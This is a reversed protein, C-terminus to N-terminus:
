NIIRLKLIVNDIKPFGIPVFFLKIKTRARVIKYEYKM